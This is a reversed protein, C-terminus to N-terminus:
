GGKRGLEGSKGLEELDGALLDVGALRAHSREALRADDADEECGGLHAGGAGVAVPGEEGRSEGGVKDFIAEQGHGLMKTITIAL